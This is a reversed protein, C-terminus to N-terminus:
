GAVGTGSTEPGSGVSAGFVSGVEAGAREAGTLAGASAADLDAFGDFAEFGHYLSKECEM